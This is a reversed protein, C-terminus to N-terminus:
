AVPKTNIPSNDPLNSNYIFSAHCFKSYIKGTSKDEWKRRRVIFYVDKDRIPFDQIRVAEDFGHTVLEKKSHESPKILKEDLCILLVNGSEKKNRQFWFISIARQLLYELLLELEM